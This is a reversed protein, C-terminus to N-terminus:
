NRVVALSRTVHQGGAELLLHYVGTSVLKGAVNRGDWSVAHGERAARSGLDQQWVLDGTTSFISLRTTTSPAALDFVLRTQQHAVPHFPNPYNPQLLTVLAAPADTLDPDFEVEYLYDYAFGADEASSVVLVVEDYQDLGIVRITPEEVPQVAVSDPGVLLM